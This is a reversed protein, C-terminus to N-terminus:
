EEEEESEEESESEKPNPGYQNRGPKSNQCFFVFLVIYCIISIFGSSISVVLVSPFIYTVFLVIGLLLWAGSRGTDHLRRFCLALAPFLIIIGYLTLLPAIGCIMVSIILNILVFNWFEKRRARGAFNGYNKLVDVYYKKIYNRM